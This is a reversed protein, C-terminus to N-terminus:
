RWHIHVLDPSCVTVAWTPKIPSNLVTYQKLVGTVVAKAARVAHAKTPHGEGCATVRGKNRFRWRWDGIGRYVEIHM